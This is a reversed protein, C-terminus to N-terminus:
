GNTNSLKNLGKFYIRYTLECEFDKADLNRKLLENCESLLESESEKGTFYGSLGVIILVLITLVGKVFYEIM